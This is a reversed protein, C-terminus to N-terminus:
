LLVDRIEKDEILTSFTFHSKLSKYIMSKDNATKKQAIEIFNEYIENDYIARLAGIKRTKRKGQCLYISVEEHSNENKTRELKLDILSSLLRNDKRDLNEM